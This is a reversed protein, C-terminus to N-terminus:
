LNDMLKFYKEGHASILPIPCETSNYMDLKYLIDHTSCTYTRQARHIQVTAKMLVFNHVLKNQHHSPSFPLKYWTVISYYLVHLLLDPTVRGHGM